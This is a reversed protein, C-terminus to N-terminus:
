NCMELSAKWVKKGHEVELKIISIPFSLWDHALVFTGVTKNESIFNIDAKTNLTIIFNEKWHWKLNTFYFEKWHSSERETEVGLM